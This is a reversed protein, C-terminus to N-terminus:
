LAGMDVLLCYSLIMLPARILRWLNQRSTVHGADEADGAICAPDNCLSESHDESCYVCSGQHVEFVIYFWRRDSFM